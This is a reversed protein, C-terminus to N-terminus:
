HGIFVKVVRPSQTKAAKTGLSQFFKGKSIPIALDISVKFFIKFVFRKLLAKWEKNPKSLVCSHLKYKNKAFSKFIYGETLM